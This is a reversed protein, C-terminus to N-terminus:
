LEGTQRRAMPHYEFSRVKGCPYMRETWGVYQVVSPNHRDIHSRRPDHVKNKLQLVTPDKDFLEQLRKQNGEDAAALVEVIATRTAAIALHDHATLQSLFEARQEDVLLSLTLRGHLLLTTPAVPRVAHARSNTVAVHMRKSRTKVRAYEVDDKSEMIALDSPAEMTSERNPPSLQRTISSSRQINIFSDFLRVASQISGVGPSTLRVSATLSLKGDVKTSIEVTSTQNRTM